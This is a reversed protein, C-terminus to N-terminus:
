QRARLLCVAQSAIGEKRGTFGMGEETKGKVNVVSVEMGMAQALARRMEAVRPAIRPEEAIVVVDVSAIEREAERVMGAVRALLALSSIGALQPDSDPFHTGLDGAGLAGLLADCIAHCVVDADSHGVLGRAEGFRVGGLVLGRGEGAFRHADYGIGVWVATEGGGGRVKEAVAGSAKKRGPGPGTAHAKERVVREAQALDHPWTVKINDPDGMVVHVPHGLREVLAADDTAGVGAQAAAAHAEELLRRRFVQPTQVLWLGSRDLTGRVQGDASVEKVTDAAPLAAVVAEHVAVAALCRRLLGASLFPRAGDHVLVVESAAGVEALGARVSAMRDAGGAVVALRQAGGGRLPAHTCAAALRQAGRTRAEAAAASDSLLHRAGEVDEAAVVLIVETIEPCAALAELAYAALPRGALPVFAKNEPRGLRSGRGAAVM